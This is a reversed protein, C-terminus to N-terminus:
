HLKGNSHFTYRICSIPEVTIYTRMYSFNYIICVFSSKSSVYYAVPSTNLKVQKKLRKKLLGLYPIGCHKLRYFIFALPCEFELLM